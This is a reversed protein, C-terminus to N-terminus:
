RSVAQKVTHYAGPSLSGYAGFPWPVMSLVMSLRVAWSHESVGCSSPSRCGPVLVGAGLSLLDRLPALPRQSRM